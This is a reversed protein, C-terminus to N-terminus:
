LLATGAHVFSNNQNKFYIIEDNQLVTAKLKVQESLMPATVGKSVLLEKNTIVRAEDWMGAKIFSQHLFAGGEVLVSQINLQHLQRLGDPIMSNKDMKLYIINGAVADKITNLIIVVATTNFLRLSVPVKLNPDFVIKKPAPGMWNRNDLLPDDAIATNAGVMIAAHETRWSHVLRNTYDNSIMLRTKGEESIYGNATQAWKLTIYPRTLQHFTFFAKNLAIAEKELVGVIVEIGAAKLKAIGKGDVKEFSDRCGIVVKPIQHRIILDACPPTKGFHACPELSVYLTSLPIKDPHNQLADQICHVEAHPGGYQQHYGEAIVQGKHVLVAGVMPNPAVHGAALRALQLCRRMYVEHAQEYMKAFTFSNVDM